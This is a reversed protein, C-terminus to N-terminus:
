EYWLHKAQMKKNHRCDAETEPRNILAIAAGAPLSMVMANV